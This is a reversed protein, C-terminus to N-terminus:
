LAAPNSLFAASFRLTSNRSLLGQGRISSLEPPVGPCYHSSNRQNKHGRFGRKVPFTVHALDSRLLGPLGGHRSCMVEHLEHQKQPLSSSWCVSICLIFFLPPGADTTGYVELVSILLSCIRKAQIGSVMNVLM